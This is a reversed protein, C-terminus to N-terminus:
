QLNCGDASEVKRSYRATAATPPLLRDVRHKQSITSQTAGAMVGTPKGLMSRIKVSSQEILLEMTFGLSMWRVTADYM